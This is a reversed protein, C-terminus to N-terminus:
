RRGACTGASFEIIKIKHFERDDACACDASKKTGHQRAGAFVNREDRAACMEARHLLMAHADATFDTLKLDRYGRRVIRCGDALRSITSICGKGSASLM